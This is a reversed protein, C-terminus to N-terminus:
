NLRAACILAQGLAISGDNAPMAQSFYVTQKTDAFVQILQQRLFQNQLVGGSFVIASFDYDQKLKRVLAHIATALTFHFRCAIEGPEKHDALDQLLATRLPRWDLERLVEDGAVKESDACSLAFPYPSVALRNEKFGSQESWQEALTQLQMAAEGEHLQEDRCLGLAAAVADFLRGASSSTPSNLGREIMTQVVELPKDNLYQMLPESRFASSLHNWEGTALLQAFTNRWPEKMAANGGPMPTPRFRGIRQSNRYDCLLFEGGWFAGKDGFGLGDLAIGLVPPHELPIGHEGMVAAIHAHHDQVPEVPIHLTAALAQGAKSSHYDPHADIAVKEPTIGFLSMQLSIQRQYDQQTAVEHL